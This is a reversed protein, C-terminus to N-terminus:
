PAFVLDFVHRWTSWHFVGSLSQKGLVVYGVIMGGFLALFLIFLILLVFLTRRLAPRRAAPKSEQSM